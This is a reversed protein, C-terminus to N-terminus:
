LSLVSAAGVSSRLKIGLVWTLSVMVDQLNLEVARAEVPLKCESPACM